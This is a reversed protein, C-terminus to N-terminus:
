KLKIEPGLLCDPNLVLKENNESFSAPEFESWEIENPFFGWCMYVYGVLASCVFTDTNRHNTHFWDMISIEAKATEPNMRLFLADFISLDYPRGVLSKYINTFEAVMESMPKITNLKRHYIDGNYTTLLYDLKTLQVGFNSGPELGSELVYTGKYTPDIYTPDQIIIGVHTYPTGLYWRILTSIINKTGCFLIIDGTNM